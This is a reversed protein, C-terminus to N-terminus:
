PIKDPFGLPFACSSVFHPLFSLQFRPMKNPFAVSKINPEKGKKGAQLTNERQVYTNTRLRHGKGSKAPKTSATQVSTCARSPSPPPFYILIVHDVASDPTSNPYGLLPVPDSAHLNHVQPGLQIAEEPLQEWFLRETNQDFELFFLLFATFSRSLRYACLVWFSRHRSHNDPACEAQTNIFLTTSLLNSRLLLRPSPQSSQATLPLQGDKLADPPLCLLQTMPKRQRTWPM